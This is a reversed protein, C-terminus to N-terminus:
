LATAENGGGWGEGAHSTGLIMRGCPESVMVM